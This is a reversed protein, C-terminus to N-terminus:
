IASLERVSRTFNAIADTWSPAFEVAVRQCEAAEDSWRDFRDIIRNLGAMVEDADRAVREGVIKKTLESSLFDDNLLPVCGCLMAETTVMGVGEGESVFAFIHSQSFFEWLESQSIPGNLSVVEDLGESAISKRLQEVFEPAYGLNGHMRWEVQDRLQPKQKLLKILAELVLHQGKAPQYSGATAIRIKDVARQIPALPRDRLEYGPIVVRLKDDTFGIKHSHGRMTDSVVIMGRYPRFARAMKRNERWRVWPRGFREAYVAQGFGILPAQSALWINATASFPYVYTDQVIADFSGNKTVWNRVVKEYEEETRNALGLDAFTAVRIDWDRSLGDGLRLNYLEGGTQPPRNIAPVLFLLRPLM